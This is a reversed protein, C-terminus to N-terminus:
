QGTQPEPISGFDCKCNGKADPPLPVQSFDATFCVPITWAVHEPNSTRPLTWSKLAPYSKGVESQWFVPAYRSYYLLRQGATCVFETRGWSKGKPVTITFLKTNSTADFVDVSVDYNTWCNDKALTYYCTFSWLPSSFSILWSLALLRIIM